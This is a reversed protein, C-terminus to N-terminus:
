SNNHGTRTAVVTAASVMLRLPEVEDRDAGFSHANGIHFNVLAAKQFHRAM